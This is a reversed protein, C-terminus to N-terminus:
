IAKKGWHLCVIGSTMKRYRVEEFGAQEMESAITSASPFERITKALYTYAAKDRAMAKGILPLLMNLYFNYVGGWIRERGSGFELIVAVGGPKLTRFMEQFAQIRNPINRIGFAMTVSDAVGSQVPLVLADGVCPMIGSGGLKRIGALLMPFCFDVAVIVASPQAKQIALSVDLTGAALDLVIGNPPPLALKAMERRWSRDIGLSLTHNLLDYVGAIRSFMAGVPNQGQGDSM